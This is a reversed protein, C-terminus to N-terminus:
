MRSLLGGDIVLTQGTMYTNSRSCLWAAAEAIESPLAPRGIPLQGYGVYVDKFWQSDMENVGDVVAMRTDVFGPALANVLVGSRAWEIAAVRTAAELGAKSIDYALCAPESAQAHVSTVNVIRGFGREIMGPAFARMLAIAAHLNVALVRADHAEDSELILAPAAIGACNVLIDVGGLIDLCGAAVSAVDRPDSLDALLFAGEVEERDIVLVEVGDARLQAAIAAGIGNAGGTVVARLESTM